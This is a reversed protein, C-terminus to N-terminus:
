QVEGSERPIVLAAIAECGVRVRELDTHTYLMAMSDSGHGLSKRREAVTMGAQDAMTANTHRFSHWTVWGMGLRVAVPKLCKTGSNRADVPNLTRESYFVPDDPGNLVARRRMTSLVALLAAPIPVIRTGKRTKPTVWHRSVYHEAVQLCGTTFDIRKWRLGCTEGIRLGTTVMLAAMTAYQGPLAAILAAAQTQTLSGRERSEIMPLRLEETPLQGVFMKCSRAHRLVASIVNRMHTLTQSAYDGHREVKRVAGDGKSDGVKVMRSYGEAQKRRFFSTLMQHDIDRLRESGLAPLIHTRLIGRYHEQGSPKLTWLYDPEFRVRVFDSLTVMAGPACSVTDLKSLVADWAMRQAERKGVKDPGTSRAITRSRKDRVPMGTIDRSDERWELIWSGSKERLYGSRQGRRRGM